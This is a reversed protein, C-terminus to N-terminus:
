RVLFNLVRLNIFTALAAADRPTSFKLLARAPVSILVGEESEASEADQGRTRSQVGQSRSQAQPVAM